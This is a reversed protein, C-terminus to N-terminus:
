RSPVVYLSTQLYVHPSEFLEPNNIRAEFEWLLLPLWRKHFHHYTRIIFRRFRSWINEILNTPGFVFQSHNCTEHEYGFFADIGEYCSASDTFVTTGRQDIHQLIFRDTTGQERNSTCRLVVQKQKRSWAGLVIQQNNTRRKGIFSEDMEVLGKLVPSEYVLHQQFKRRWHRVTVHSLKTIELTLHFPIKRQWCYLLLWLDQYSIKMGRLWTVSTLSFPKRCRPCHYRGESRKVHSSHCRPCFPRKGFTSQMLISKIKAESPIAELINM